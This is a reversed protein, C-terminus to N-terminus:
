QRISEKHTEIGWENTSWLAELTLYLAYGVVQCAIFALWPLHGLLAKLLPWMTMASVIRYTTAKAVTRKYQVSDDPRIGYDSDNWIREHIFGFFAMVGIYIALALLPVNLGLLIAAFWGCIAIKYVAVKAVSRWSTSSVGRDPFEPVVGRARDYLRFLWFIVPYAIPEFHLILFLPILQPVGLKWSILPFVGDEIIEWILAAWFFRRGHKEGLKRLERYIAPLNLKKWIEKLVWKLVNLVSEM